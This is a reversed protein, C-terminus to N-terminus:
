DDDLAEDDLAEDDLAEDDLAEDDLAEDDLAEDDLAEDDEDFLGGGFREWAAQADEPRGLDDLLVALRGGLERARNPAGVALAEAAAPELVEIAQEGQGLLDLAEARLLAVDWVSGLDGLERYADDLGELLGLGEQAEGARLLVRASQETLV